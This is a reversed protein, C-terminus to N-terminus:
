KDTYSIEGMRLCGTFTLYFTADTNVGLISNSSIIIKTLISYLILLKLIVEKLNPNFSTARDLIYYLLVNEFVIVPLIHNIYIFYIVVLYLYLTKLAVRGIYLSSNSYIKQVILATTSYRAQNDLKISHTTYLIYLLLERYIPLTAKFVKYKYKAIIQEIYISWMRGTITNLFADSQWISSPTIERLKLRFSAVKFNNIKYLM